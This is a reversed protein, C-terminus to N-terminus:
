AATTRSGLMCFENGQPDTLVVCSQEGKGVDARKAGLGLLREVEADRDDPRDLHLRNKNV